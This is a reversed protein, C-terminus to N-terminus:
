DHSNVEEIITRVQTQITEHTIKQVVREMKADMIMKEATNRDIGRSNLYFLTNSDLEGISAGHAGKVDEEGCLLVPITLNQVNEGLLLVTEHETGESGKSGHQLDITGRFIKKGEEGLLGELQIESKSDEGRHRALLSMDLTQKTTLYGVDLTFHSAKEALDTEIHSYLDGRGLIFQVIHLHSDQHCQSYVQNITQSDEGGLFVQVLTFNSKAEGTIHTSLHLNKEGSIVQLLTTNEGSKATIHVTGQSFLSDGTTIHQTEEGQTIVCPPADEQWELSVQNGKLWTWTPVPLKNIIM